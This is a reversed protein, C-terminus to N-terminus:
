GTNRGRALVEENVCFRPPKGDLALHIDEVIKRRIDWAADESYWALHPTLIVNDLDLLPYTNEPPENNYVDVAAGAIAKRRLADALAEHDVMPGRSTNVVYATPKMMALTERNVLHRTEDNLPTHITLYDSERFVQELPVAAIGLEERWAPSLYPDCVLIQGFGFHRMKQFVMGGIRGCGVIGLTKGAMRWCRALPTFNWQRRVVADDLIIRSQPIQRACAFILAIAQEAVEDMCYDPCYALPIGRATCAAQDVNDYGAGHRIIRRCRDLSGIVTATMRVMNVVIVDADRVAAIVDAESRFKLQHAVFDVGRRNMEEAELDLDPEIYDTVVVKPRYNM